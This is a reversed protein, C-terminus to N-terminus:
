KDVWNFQSSDEKIQGANSKALSNKRPKSARQKQKGKSAALQSPNPPPEPLFLDLQEIKRLARLIAILAILTINGNATEARKITSESIGALKALEAQSHNANLRAVKLRHGIERNAEFNSLTTFDTKMINARLHGILHHM